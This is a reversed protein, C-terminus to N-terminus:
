ADESECWTLIMGQKIVDAKFVEGEVQSIKIQDGSIRQFYVTAMVEQTSYDLVEFYGGSDGGGVTIKGGDGRGIYYKKGEFEVLSSPNELLQKQFEPDLTSLDDGYGCDVMKSDDRFFLNLDYLVNDEGLFYGQWKGSDLPKYNEQQEGCNGCRGEYFSHKCEQWTFVDGVIIDYNGVLLSGSYSIVTLQNGATRQLTIVANYVSVTIFDGDVTCTVPGSDGGGLLYYKGNEHKYKEVDVGSAIADKVTADSAPERFGYHWSPQGWDGLSSFYFTHTVWVDDIYRGIGWCGTELARFSPDPESCITCKGEAFSHGKAAGETTGCVTCTKPATCTAETWSHEKVTGETAKCVSCTKPATCTAETWSHEKVGGETAKCVSCTKPATCTAETWSHGLAAKEDSRYSDGCACTNTTYGGNTCDPATVSQTYRHSHTETPQTMTQTPQSGVGTSETNGTTEKETDKGCATMCILMAAILLLMAIKKM